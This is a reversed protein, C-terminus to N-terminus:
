LTHFWGFEHPCEVVGERQHGVGVPLHQNTSLYHEGTSNVNFKVHKPFDRGGERGQGPGTTDEHLDRLQLAGQRVAVALGSRSIVWVLDLFNGWKVVTQSVEGSWNTLEM